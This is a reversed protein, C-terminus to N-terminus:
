GGHGDLWALLNGLQTFDLLAEGEAKAEQYVRTKADVRSLNSFKYIIITSLL